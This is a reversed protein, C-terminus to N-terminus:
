KLNMQILLEKFESLIMATAGWVTKEKLSFYPVQFNFANDTGRGVQRIEHKINKDDILDQITVDFIEEVERNDKEFFPKQELYSLFPTVKMKSPPIYIDTLELLVNSKSIQVGFEERTERLAAELSSENPEIKGGPLSVQGGHVGNYNPRQMLAFSTTAHDPYLLIMVAAERYKIGQEQAEKLSTRQYPAMKLQAKQGPLSTKQRQKFQEVLQELKLPNKKFSLM